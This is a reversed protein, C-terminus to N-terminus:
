FLLEIKWSERAQSGPGPEYPGNKQHDQKFDTTYSCKTINSAPTGPDGEVHDTM